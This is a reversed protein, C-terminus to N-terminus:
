FFFTGSYGRSSGANRRLALVNPGGYRISYFFRVLIECGDWWDGKQALMDPTSLQCPKQFGSAGMASSDVSQERRRHIGCVKGHM